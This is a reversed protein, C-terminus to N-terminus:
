EVDVSIFEAPQDPFDSPFADCKINGKILETLFETMSYKYEIYDPSRSKYVVIPWNEPNGKSEWYLVNGNDTISWPLLGDHNPFATHKFMNPFHSKSDMYSSCIVDIQKLLNVNKDKVFPTLIWLFEDIGGAGYTSIFEKYDSPLKIGIDKEVLSWENSSGTNSPVEPPPLVSILEEVSM